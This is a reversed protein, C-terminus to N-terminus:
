EKIEKGCYPCYTFLRKADFLVKDGVCQVLANTEEWKWKCFEDEKIEMADIKNYIARVIGKRYSFTFKSLHNIWEQLYALIYEKADRNIKINKNYKFM